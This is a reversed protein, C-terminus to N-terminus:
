GAGQAPLGFAFGSGKGPTSDLEIVGGHLEVIRKAIALGPGAGGGGRSEGARYFREFIFPLDAAAIGVGSDIVRVVVRDGEARLTVRM